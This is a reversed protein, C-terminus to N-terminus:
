SYSRLLTGTSAHFFYQLGQRQMYVLIGVDLFPIANDWSNGDPPPDIEIMGNRGLLVEWKGLGCNTPLEDWIEARVEDYQGRARLSCNRCLGAELEKRNRFTWGAWLPRQDIRGKPDGRRKLFKFKSLNCSESSSCESVSTLAHFLRETAQTQLAHLRFLIEKRAAPCQDLEEVRTEAASHYAYPLLWTAGVEHFVTISPLLWRAGIMHLLACFGSGHFGPHHQVITSNLVELQNLEIPFITELYCVARKYLYGVDYKHALRLIGLVEYLDIKYPPPMFYFWLYRYAYRSDFIARLFAEAEKPSDHLRIVPSGDVFDDSDAMEDGDSVPQPFEFMSQFVSSRAALISKPVRFTSEGARLVVLTDNSFWLGDIQKM